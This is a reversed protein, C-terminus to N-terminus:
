KGPYLANFAEKVTEAGLKGEYDRVSSLFQLLVDPRKGSAKPAKEEAGEAGRKGKPGKRSKKIISKYTSIQTTSMDVNYEAKLIEMMKVPKTKIGYKAFAERVVAMKNVKGEARAM